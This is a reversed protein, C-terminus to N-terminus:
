VLVGLAMNPLSQEALLMQKQPCTVPAQGPAMVCRREVVGRPDTCNGLETRGTAADALACLGECTDSKMVGLNGDGNSVFSFRTRFEDGKGCLSMSLAAGAKCSSGGICNTEGAPAGFAYGLSDIEHYGEQYTVEHWMLSPDFASLDCAQYIVQGSTGNVALCMDKADQGNGRSIYYTDYCFCGPPGHRCCALGMTNMEWKTGMWMGFKTHDNVQCGSNAHVLVDLEGGAYSRHNQWWTIAIQLFKDSAFFSFNPAEFPGGADVPFKTPDFEFPFACVGSYTPAPDSHAMPCEITDNIGMDHLFEKRKKLAAAMSAKDAGHFLVHVHHSIIKPPSDINDCMTFDLAPHAAFAPVSRTGIKEVSKSHVLHAVQGVEFLALYLDGTRKDVDLEHLGRAPIPDQYLPAPLVSPSAMLAAIDFVAVEFVGGASHIPAPMLGLILLDRNGDVRLGNVSPPHSSPALGTVSWSGKITGTLADLAVTRNHERDAVWVLDRKADYGLAHPNQFTGDNGVTWKVELTKADLGIVRHNAGGELCLCDGDAIFMMSGDESFAIDSVNGFQLPHTATGFTGRTGIVKVLKGTATDFKKVTYDGMDTVWLFSKGGKVELKLGHSKIVEPHGWRWLVNGKADFTTIPHETNGRATMHIQISKGNEVVEVAVATPRYTANMWSINDNPWAGDWTYTPSSYGFAVAVAVANSFLAFTRCTHYSISM